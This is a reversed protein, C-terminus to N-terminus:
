LYMWKFPQMFLNYRSDGLLIVDAMRTAVTIMSLGQAAPATRAVSQYNLRNSLIIKRFNKLVIGSLFESDKRRFNWESITSALSFSFSFVAHQSDLRGLQM